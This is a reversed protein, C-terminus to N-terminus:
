GLIRLGARQFYQEFDMRLNNVVRAVATEFATATYDWEPKFDEDPGSIPMENKLHRTGVPLVARSGDVSVVEVRDILTGRWFIDALRVRVTQDPFVAGDWLDTAKTIEYDDWKLGHQITLDVDPEFVFLTDHSQFADDDVNYADTFYPGVQPKHWDEPDSDIIMQRIENLSPM